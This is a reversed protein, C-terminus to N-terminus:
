PGLPLTNRTLTKCGSWCGATLAPVRRMETDGALLVFPHSCASSTQLLKGHHTHEQARGTPSAWPELQQHSTQLDRTVEHHWMPQTTGTHLHADLTNDAGSTHRRAWCVEQGPPLFPPHQAPMKRLQPAARNPCYGAASGRGQGHGIRPHQGTTGPRIPVWTSGAGGPLPQHREM